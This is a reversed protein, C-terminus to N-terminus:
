KELLKFISLLLWASSKIFIAFKIEHLSSKNVAHKLLKLYLSYIISLLLNLLSSLNSIVIM